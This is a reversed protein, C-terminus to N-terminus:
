WKTRGGNQALVERARKKQSRCMDQLASCQHRNIWETAQTLRHIFHPRDEKGAPMTAHLRDRLLHWCNEIPNLDQSCRPYEAVLEIGCQRMSVMPEESRLCREYDQILYRAGGMWQCVQEEIFEAYLYKDMVEGEDLVHVNLRGECLLGWVRVPYGQAKAYSSPGIADEFMADRAESKRWVFSGLALRASSEAEVETRDLYFVTGDSYMFKDLTDQHRRLVWEAYKIRAQKHAKPVLTKRRRRLWHLGAEHLREQVLNDSFKKLEPMTKKINATTVKVKGRKKLVHNLIKRDVARTTKRPRASGPAREGRYQPNNALKSMNNAITQHTFHSGDARTIIRAIEAPGLGHYVHALVQGLEFPTMPSAISPAMSEFVPISVGADFRLLLELWRCGEQALNLLMGGSYFNARM